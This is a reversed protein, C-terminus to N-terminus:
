MLRCARWLWRATRFHGREVLRGATQDIRYVAKLRLRTRYPLRPWIIEPM